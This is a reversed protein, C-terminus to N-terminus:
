SLKAELAAIQQNMEEPLREGLKALFEKVQPLEAKLRELDVTLLEDLTAPDIDLGELNLDAANPVLGIPTEVADVEGDLRRCVWELVRSNDGFGPWLFHGGDDKRFWNVYFIKPLKAGETKGIKLY